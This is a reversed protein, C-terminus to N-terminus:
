SGARKRCSGTCHSVTKVLHTWVGKQLVSAGAIHLEYDLGEGKSVHRALQAAKRDETCGGRTISLSRSQTISADANDLRPRPGMEHLSNKM